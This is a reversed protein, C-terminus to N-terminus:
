PCPIPLYPDLNPFDGQVETYPRDSKDVWHKGISALREGDEDEITAVADSHHLFIGAKVGEAVFEAVADCAPTGTIASALPLDVETPKGDVARVGAIGLDAVRLPPIPRTFRDRPGPQAYGEDDYGGDASPDYGSDYGDDATGYYTTGGDDGASASASASASADTPDSDSVPGGTAVGLEDYAVGYYVTSTDDKAGVSLRFAAPNADGVVVAESFVLRLTQPDGFRVEELKPPGDDKEASSCGLLAAAGFCLPVFPSSRRTM